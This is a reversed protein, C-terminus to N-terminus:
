LLPYLDNLRAVPKSEAATRPTPTAAIIAMTVSLAHPDSRCGASGAARATYSSHSASAKRGADLSAFRALAIERSSRRRCHM